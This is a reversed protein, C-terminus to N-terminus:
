AGLARYGAEVIQRQLDTLTRQPQPRQPQRRQRRQSQQWQKDAQETARRKKTREEVNQRYKPLLISYVEEVTLCKANILARRTGLDERV